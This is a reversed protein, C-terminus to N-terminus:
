KSFVEFAAVLGSTRLIQYQGAVIFPFANRLQQGTWEATPHRTVHFHLIRRRDDALVLFVYLDQFRIAPVTFFDISVLQSVHNQLFTRWAQSSPQRCRVMYKSVSTQGIFPQFLAAQFLQRPRVLICTKQAPASILEHHAIRGLGAVLRWLGSRRTPSSKVRSFAPAGELYISRAAPLRM